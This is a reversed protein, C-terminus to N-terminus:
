KRFASRGIFYLISGGATAVLGAEIPSKEMLRVVVPKYKKFLSVSRYVKVVGAVATAVDTSKTIKAANSISEIAMGLDNILEKSIHLLSQDEFPADNTGDTTPNSLKPENLDGCNLSFKVSDLNDQISKLGKLLQENRKQLNLTNVTKNSM